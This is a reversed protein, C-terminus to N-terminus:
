GPQQLNIVMKMHMASLILINKQLRLFDDSSIIPNWFFSGANGLDVPDPLKSQRIACVADSVVQPTIQDEAIDKLHERLAPYSLNPISNKFLKFTVSTIVFRDKWTSKFISHRYSLQCDEKSFTHLNM